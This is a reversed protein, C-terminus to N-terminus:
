HFSKQLKIHAFGGDGQAPGGEWAPEQPNLSIQEVFQRRIGGIASKQFSPCLLSCLRCFDRDEQLKCDLPPLSLLTLTMGLEESSSLHLPSLSFPHSLAPSSSIKSLSSPSPRRLLYATSCPLPCPQLPLPPPANPGFSCWCLYSCLRLGPPLTQRSVEPLM